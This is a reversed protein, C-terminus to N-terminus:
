TKDLIYGNPSFKIEEVQISSHTFIKFDKDNQAMEFVKRYEELDTATPSYTDDGVRVLLLRHYDPDAEFIESSIPQQKMHPPCGDLSIEGAFISRWRELDEPTPVYKNDGVKIITLPNNVKDGCLASDTITAAVVAAASGTIFSRRNM